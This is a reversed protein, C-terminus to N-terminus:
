AGIVRKYRVSRQLEKLRSIADERLQKALEAGGGAGQSVTLEGLSVSDVGAQQAENSLLIKSLTLDIICPQYKEPIASSDISSTTYQEAFNIEQEIVNNLTTGSISITSWGLFNGVHNAVSGVNWLGSTM